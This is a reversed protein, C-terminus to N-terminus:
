IKLFIEAFKLDITTTIKLNRDEGRVLWAPLGILEILQLDDTIQNLPLPCKKFAQILDTRRMIQPTQLAYLNQRPVTRQVQAPLEGAVEKVTLNVPMAPAAAGYHLAAAFTRDILEQSVLPRAADHIAVWEINDPIARLGYLVSQARNAGGSVSIVREGSVTERGAVIVLKVDERKAFAQISRDLVSVGDLSESLKDKGFRISVGAAPLIVALDPM